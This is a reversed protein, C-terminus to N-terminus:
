PEAVYCQALWEKASHPLLNYNILQSLAVRTPIYLNNKSQTDQEPGNGLQMKGSFSKILFYSEHRGENDQEFVLRPESVSLNTEEEVERIVAEKPSEDAEISGGPFVWYEKDTKIRHILLIEQNDNIIIACSRPNM